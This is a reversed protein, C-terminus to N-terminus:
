EDSNMCNFAVNVVDEFCKGKVRTKLKGMVHMM